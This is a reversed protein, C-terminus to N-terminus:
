PKLPLLWPVLVVTLILVIITFPVGVRVFDSFRYNGPVLVLTNVPSSVPTMFAASAALAVTMVFPYPSMGLTTALQVAIPAMLVATATNSVFLGVTATLTFLAGLLLRPEATGFFHLLGQVALDVGGTKQLATSFPMMGVILLLSPWQISRYASTLSICGALGMLLATILAALANPVWGTVMLVIMVALCGLAYAARHRAPAVQDIEAPLNLVLFDRTQKQLERIQKWRGIVLLVDGLQLKEDIVGGRLATSGRRLGIVNLRYKRRFTAEAVTRGILDSEPPLLVEAMGLEHSQDTFYHGHLPLSEVNLKAFVTALEALPPEPFDILLVDGAALRTDARPEILESWSGRPREIAIVNAARHERVRSEQLTQGVMPSGARLRVRLERPELEYDRVFDMLSRREDRPQKAAESQGLWRRAVLMYGVGATLVALGFPTFSFFRFGAFGAHELASNAVLNPATGVLTLMGSILGAFSLPMMLRGPALKQRGAILLVVPIFIAVVGTSSMVSGLFAVALMLMVLLRTENGGSRRLLFDGIGNALGTRVLGEGVVFLAAILIVSPDSFGAFAEPVTIIGAVPLAVMALLAVVDMRPKNVVFMAVCAGLLGLVFVLPSIM